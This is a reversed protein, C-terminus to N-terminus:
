FNKNENILNKYKNIYEIEKRANELKNLGEDLRPRITTVIYDLQEREELVNKTLKLSKPKFKDEVDRFFKELSKIGM